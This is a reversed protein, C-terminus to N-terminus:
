VITINTFAHCRMEKFQLLFWLLWDALLVKHFRFVMFLASIATKM